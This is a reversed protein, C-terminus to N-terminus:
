RIFRVPNGAYTGPKDIDHRIVTGAGIIVNDCITVGPIVIAGTGFFVNNGVKVGGNLQVVPSLVCNDGVVCDHTISSYINLLCFDGITANATIMSHPCMVLGRGTIAMFSKFGLLLDDFYYKNSFREILKKRLGVDGLGLVLSPEDLINEEALVPVGYSNGNHLGILGHVSEKRDKMYSLLERALGGDGLIYRM